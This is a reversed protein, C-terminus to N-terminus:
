PAVPLYTKLAAAAVPGATQLLSQLGNLAFGVIAILEAHDVAKGAVVNLKDLAQEVTAGLQQVIPPANPDKLGDLIGTFEGILQQASLQGMHQAIKRTDARPNTLLERIDGSVVTYAYVTKADMPTLGLAEASQAAGLFDGARMKDRVVRAKDLPIQLKNMYASFQEENMNAWSDFLGSIQRMTEDSQYFQQKYGQDSVKQMEDLKRKAYDRQFHSEEGLQYDQLKGQAARNTEMQKQDQTNIQPVQEHSEKGLSVRGEGAKGGVNMDGAVYRM